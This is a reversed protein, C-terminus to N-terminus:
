WSYLRTSFVSITFKTATATSASANSQGGGGGKALVQSGDDWYTDLGSPGNGTGGTGGTGVVFNITALPTVSITKSAYAGGGGGGGQGNSGSRGGGAGAGGWCEVTISTVGTPVNFSGTTTYTSVSQGFSSVLVLGFALILLSKAIHTPNPKSIQSHKNSTPLILAKM